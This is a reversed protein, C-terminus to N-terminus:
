FWLDWDEIDYGGRHWEDTWSFVFAGACGLRFATRIQWDLAEAQKERATEEVTWDSKGWSWRFIAPLIKFVISIPKWVIRNRLTFTSVTFIWFFAAPPIGYDSFECLYRTRESRGKQSYHLSTQSLARNKQPWALPCHIVPDRQRDCLLSSSPPRCDGTYAGQVRDEISQATKRSELFTVHQEWPLGVMVYVGKRLATDLFWRPPPTYIRVVNIGITEMHAFDKEVLEPNYFENGSEDQGLPAM